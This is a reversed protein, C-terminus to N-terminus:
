ELEITTQANIESLCMDVESEFDLIETEMEEILAKAGLPDVFVMQENERKSDAMKQATEVVDKNSQTDKGVFGEVMRQIDSDLKINAMELTNTAKSLNLKLTQLLNREYQISNKREIADAVTYVKGAVEVQTEANSKVISSKILKRQEILDKISQYTSKAKDEFEKVTMLGNKVKDSKAKKTEVFSAGQLQKEIKQDLLKLEALARTISLKRM